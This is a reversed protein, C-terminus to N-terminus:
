LVAAISASTASSTTCSYNLGRSRIACGRCCMRYRRRSRSTARRGAWSAVRKTPGFAFRRRSRKSWLTMLADSEHMARINRRTFRGQTVEQAAHIVADVEAILPEYTEPQWMDGRALEAGAAFLDRAKDPNRVLGLLRHERRLLAHAIARGVFGTAGTVLVRM